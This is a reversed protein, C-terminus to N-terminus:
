FLSFPSRGGRRRSGSRSRSRRDRIRGILQQRKSELWKERTMPVDVGRRRAETERFAFFDRYAQMEHELENGILEIMIADDLFGLVPIDDAILDDPELFYALGSLIRKREPAPLAFGGDRLMAQMTEIIGVRDRVFAPLKKEQMEVLLGDTAALIEEEDYEKAVSKAQRMLKRFHKLDEDDLEFSITMSM